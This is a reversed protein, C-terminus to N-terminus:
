FAVSDSHLDRTRIGDTGGNQAPSRKTSDRRWKQKLNKFFIKFVNLTQKIYSPSVIIM